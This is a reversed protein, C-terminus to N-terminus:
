TPRAVSRTRTTATTSWREGPKSALTTPMPIALPITGPTSNSPSATALNYALYSGSSGLAGPNANQIVFAFGNAGNRSIENGPAQGAADTIGQIQLRGKISEGAVGAETGTVAPSVLWADDVFPQCCNLPGGTAGTDNRATGKAPPFVADNRAPDPNGADICPSSDALAFSAEFLPDGTFNGIGPWVTGVCSYNVVPTALLRIDDPANGFVISSDLAVSAANDLWLGGGDSDVATNAALTCNVFQGTTNGYFYAGGASDGATNQLLLVNTLFVQAVGDVALGGGDDKAVNQELRSCTFYGVAHDTIQAAGGDADNAFDDALNGQFHCRDVRATSSGTAYLAGGDAGQSALIDVIEPM